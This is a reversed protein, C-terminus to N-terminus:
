VAEGGGALPPGSAVYPRLYLYLARQGEGRRVLVSQQVLREAAAAVLEEPRGVRLSLSQITERSYPNRQFYLTVDLRVLDLDGLEM